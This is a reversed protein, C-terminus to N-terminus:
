RKCSRIPPLPPPFTKTLAATLAVCSISVLRSTAVRGHHVQLHGVRVRLTGVPDRPSDIRSRLRSRVQYQAIRGTCTAINASSIDSSIEDLANRDVGCTSGGRGYMSASMSADGHFSGGPVGLTRTSDFLAMTTASERAESGVKRPGLPGTPRFITGSREGVRARRRPHFRARLPGRGHRTRSLHVSRLPGNPTSRARTQTDRPNSPRDVSGRIELPHFAPLPLILSSFINATL